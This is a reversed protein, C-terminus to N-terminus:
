MFNQFQPVILQKRTREWGKTLTYSNVTNSLIVTQFDPFMGAASVSAPTCDVQRAGHNSVLIAAVGLGAAIAADEATLIGKLILPLQTISFAFLYPVACFLFGLLSWVSLM